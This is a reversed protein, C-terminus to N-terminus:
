LEGPVRAEARTRAATEFVATLERNGDKKFFFDALADLSRSSLDAAEGNPYNVSVLRDGVGLPLASHAEGILIRGSSDSRLSFGLPRLQLLCYSLLRTLLFSAPRFRLMVQCVQSSFKLEYRGSADLVPKPTKSFESLAAANHSPRLEMAQLHMHEAENHRSQQLFLRALADHTHRKLATVPSLAILRRYELEAGRFDGLKERAKALLDLTSGSDPKIRQLEKYSEIATHM